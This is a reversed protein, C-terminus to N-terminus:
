ETEVSFIKDPRYWADLMSASPPLIATLRKEHTDEALIRRVRNRGAEAHQILKSNPLLDLDALMRDVLGREELAHEKAMTERNPDPTINACSEPFPLLWNERGQPPNLVGLPIVRGDAARLRGSRDLDHFQGVSPFDLGAKNGLCSFRHCLIRLQRTHETLRTGYVLAPEMDKVYVHVRKDLFTMLAMLVTSAEFEDDLHMMSSLVSHFFAMLPIGWDLETFFQCHRTLAEARNEKLWSLNDQFTSSSSPNSPFLNAILQAPNIQANAQANAHANTQANTQTDTPASIPTDIPVNSQTRFDRLIAHADALHNPALLRLTHPSSAVVAALYRTLEACAEEMRLIRRHAELFNLTSCCLPKSTKFDYRPQQAMTAWQILVYIGEWKAFRRQITRFIKSLTERHSETLETLLLHTQAANRRVIPPLMHIMAVVIDPFHLEHERKQAIYEVINEGEQMDRFKKPITWPNGKACTIFLKLEERYNDRIKFPNDSRGEESLRCLQNNQPQTQVEMSQETQDEMMEDEHADTPEIMSETQYKSRSAPSTDILSADYLLSSAPRKSGSLAETHMQPLILTPPASPSPSPAIGPKSQSLRAHNFISDTRRQTQQCLVQQYQQMPQGTPQGQVASLMGQFTPQVSQFGPLAPLVGHFAPFGGEGETSQQWAFAPHTPLMYAPQLIQSYLMHSQPTQSQLPYGFDSPSPQRIEVSHNTIRQLFATLSPLPANNACLTNVSVSFIHIPSARSSEQAKFFKRADAIATESLDISKLDTIAGLLNEAMAMWKSTYHQKQSRIEFATKTKTIVFRIQSIVLPIMHHQANTLTQNITVPTIQDPTNITLHIIMHRVNSKQESMQQKGNIRALM